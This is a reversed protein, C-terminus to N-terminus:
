PPGSDGNIAEPQNHTESGDGHFQQVTSRDAVTDTLDDITASDVLVAFQHHRMADNAASPQPLLPQM